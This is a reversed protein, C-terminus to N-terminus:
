GLEALYYMRNGSIFKIDAETVKLKETPLLKDLADTIHKAIDVLNDKEYKDTFINFGAALYNSNTKLEAEKDTKIDYFKCYPNRLELGEYIMLRVDVKDYQHNRENMSLIQKYLAIKSNDIKM